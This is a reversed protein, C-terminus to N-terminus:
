GRSVGTMDVEPSANVRMKRGNVFVDVTGDEFTELFVGYSAPPQSLKEVQEKLAVLQERAERLTSALRDTNSHSDALEAATQALRKELEHIRRPAAELKRKTLALEDQVLKLQGQLDQVERDYASIRRELEDDPVAVM